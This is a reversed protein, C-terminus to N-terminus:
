RSRSSTKLLIHFRFLPAPFCYPRHIFHIKQKIQYRSVRLTKSEHHCNVRGKVLLTSTTETHVNCVSCYFKNGHNCM